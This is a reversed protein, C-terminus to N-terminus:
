GRTLGQVHRSWNPFSNLLSARNGLEFDAFDFGPSVTTGLLAWKGGYKLRAGQWAGAPVVLQPVNGDHFNVGLTYIKGDQGDQLVLLEVPDGCYFHFIEDSKIRHIASFQDPTILYFIATSHSRREEGAEPIFSGM